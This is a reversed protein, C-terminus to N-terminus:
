TCTATLHVLACVRPSADPSNPTVLADSQEILEPSNAWLNSQQNDAHDSRAKANAKQANKSPYQVLPLAPDTSTNTAQTRPNAHLNALVIIPLHGTRVRVVVLAIHKKM